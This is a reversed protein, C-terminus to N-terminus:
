IFLSRKSSDSQLFTNCVQQSDSGGLWALRNKQTAAFIVQQIRKYEALSEVSAQNANMSQCNKQLLTELLFDTNLIKFQFLEFNFDCLIMLHYIWTVTTVQAEAWTMLQSVYIYCKKRYRTWGAPCCASTKDHHHEEPSLSHTLSENKDKIFISM